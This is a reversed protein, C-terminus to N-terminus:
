FCKEEQCGDDKAGGKVLIDVMETNGMDRIVRLLAVDGRLKLNVDAGAEILYKVVDKYGNIAALHLATNRSIEHQFNLNAKRAVLVKIVELQGRNAAIQLATWGFFARKENVDVVGTDLFKKVLSVNGDQLATSYEVSEDDTIAFATTSLALLSALMMAKILKV